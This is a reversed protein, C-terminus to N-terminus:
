TALEGLVMLGLDAYITQQAEIFGRLKEGSVDTRYDALCKIKISTKGTPWLWIRAVSIGPVTHHPTYYYNVIVGADFTSREMKRTIGNALQTCPNSCNLTMLVHDFAKM